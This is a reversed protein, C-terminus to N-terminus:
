LNEEFITYIQALGVPAERKLDLGPKKTLIDGPNAKLKFITIIMQTSYYIKKQTSKKINQHFEGYEFCLAYLIHEQQSFVPFNLLTTNKGLLKM